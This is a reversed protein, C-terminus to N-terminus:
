KKGRKVQKILYKFEQLFIRYAEESSWIYKNFQYYKAEPFEHLYSERVKGGRIHLSEAVLMFKDAIKVAKPKIKKFGYKKCIAKEVLKNLKVYGRMWKSHKIPSPMDLLGLGEPSDHLLGALKDNVSACLRSVRVAHEAGSYKGASTHGAFRPSRSLGWAIDEITFSDLTPHYPSFYLGSHLRISTKWRRM